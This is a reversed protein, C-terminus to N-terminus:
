HFTARVIPNHFVLIECNWRLLEELVERSTGGLDIGVTLRLQCGAQFKELLRDRLRLITRMAVFASVFAIRTYRAREGLLVDIEQGLQVAPQALIRTRM